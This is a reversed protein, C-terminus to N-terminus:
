KKEALKSILSAKMEKALEELEEIKLKMMRNEKVLRDAESEMEVFKLKRIYRSRKSAINNKIRRETYKKESCNTTEEDVRHIPHVIVTSMRPKKTIYDHDLDAAALGEEKETRVLRRKKVCEESIVTETEQVFMERKEKQAALKVVLSPEEQVDLNAIPVALALEPKGEGGQLDNNFNSLDMFSNLFDDGPFTSGIAEIFDDVDVEQIGLKSKESTLFDKDITDILKNGAFDDMIGAYENDFLGNVKQDLRLSINSTTTLTPEMDWDASPAPFTWGNLWNTWPDPSSQARAM